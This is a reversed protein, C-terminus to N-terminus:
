LEQGLILHLFDALADECLSNCVRNELVGKNQPAGLMHIEIGHNAMDFAHETLGCLVSLFAALMNWTSDRLSLPLSCLRFALELVTGEKCEGRGWFYLGM